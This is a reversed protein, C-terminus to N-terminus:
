REAQVALQLGGQTICLSFFISYDVAVKISSSYLVAICMWLLSSPNSDLTPAAAVQSFSRCSVPMSEFVGPFVALRM